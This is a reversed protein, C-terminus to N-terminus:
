LEKFIGKESIAHILDKPAAGEIRGVGTLQAIGDKELAKGYKSSFRNYGILLKDLYAENRMKLTDIARVTKANATDTGDSVMICREARDMIFQMNKSSGYEMDLLVYQYQSQSCLLQILSSTQEDGMDDFVAAFGPSEFYSVGDESEQVMHLIKEQMNKKQSLLEYLINEMTYKGNGEFYLNTDGTPELNVYLVKAGERALYVAYAAALTSNGVGGAPSSFLILKAAGESKVVVDTLHNSHLLQIEKCINSLKQYKGIATEDRVMAYAASDTLYAFACHDPVERTDVVFTDSALFVNIRRSKVCDMAGELTEYVYLEFTGAYQNGLSNVFRKLYKQDSDLILLKIKINVSM